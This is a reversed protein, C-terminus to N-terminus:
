PKKPAEAPPAAPTQTPTAPTTTAAPAAPTESPTTGPATGAPVTSAPPAATGAGRAVRVGRAKMWQDFEEATMRKGNQNMDFRWPTNDFQTQPKYTAPDIVGSGPAAAPALNAVSRCGELKLRFLVNDVSQSEDFAQALVGTPAGLQHSPVTLEPALAPLVTPQIPMARPTGLMACNTPSQAQAVGAVMLLSIATLARLMTTRGFHTPLTPVVTDDFL